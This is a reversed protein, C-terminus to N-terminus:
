EHLVGPESGNFFRDAIHEPSVEGTKIISECTALTLQSDDSIAWDKHERFRLPGPQGEYPGGMADGIAGGPICGCDRDGLQTAGSEPM